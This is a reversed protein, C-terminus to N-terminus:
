TRAKFIIAYITIHPLFLKKQYILYIVESSNLFHVPLLKGENNALPLYFLQQYQNESYESNPNGNSCINVNSSTSNNQSQCTSGPNVNMSNTNNTTNGNSNTENNSILNKDFNYNFQNKQGVYTIIESKEFPVLATFHGKTYGLAIPSKFCFNPEWILPM